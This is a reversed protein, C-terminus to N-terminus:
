FVTPLSMNPKIKWFPYFSNKLWPPPFPHFWESLLSAGHEQLLMARLALALRAKADLKGALSAHAWLFQASALRERAQALDPM